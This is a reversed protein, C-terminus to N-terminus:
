ILFVNLLLHLRLSSGPPAGSRFQVRALDAYSPARFSTTEDTVPEIKPNSSESKAASRAPSEGSMVCLVCQGDTSFRAAESASSKEARGSNAGTQRSPVAPASKMDPHCRHRPKPPEPGKRAIPRPTFGMLPCNTAAYLNGWGSVALTLFILSIRKIRAKMMADENGCSIQVRKLRDNEPIPLVLFSPNM